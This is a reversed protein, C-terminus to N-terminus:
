NAIELVSFRHSQVFTYCQTSTEPLLSVDLTQMCRRGSFESPAPWPTTVSSSVSAMSYSTISTPLLRNSYSSTTSSRTASASPIAIPSTASPLISNLAVLTATGSAVSTPSSARGVDTAFTTMGLESHAPTPAQSSEESSTTADAPLDSRPSVSLIAATSSTILSTALPSSAM